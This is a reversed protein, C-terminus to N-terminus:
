QQKNKSSKSSTARVDGWPDAPAKKDPIKQLTAKYAQDTAKRKEIEEASLPKEPNVPVSLNSQAFAPGAFVGTMAVVIILTRLM